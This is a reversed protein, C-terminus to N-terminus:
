GFTTSNRKKSRGNTIFPISLKTLYFLLVFIGYIYNSIHYECAVSEIENYLPCISLVTFAECTIFLIKTEKSKFKNNIIRSILTFALAFLTWALSDCLGYINQQALDSNSIRFANFGVLLTLLATIILAISIKVGM